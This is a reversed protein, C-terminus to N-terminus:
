DGQGPVYTTHEEDFRFCACGIGWPYYFYTWQAIMDTYFVFADLIYRFEEKTLTKEAILERFRRALRRLKKLGYSGLLNTYTPDIEMYIEELQRVSFNESRCLRAIPYLTYMSLDRSLSYVFEWTSFYQQCSGMGSNKGTRIDKHEPPERRSADEALEMLEEVLAEAEPRCKEPKTLVQRPRRMEEAAEDEKENGSREEMRSIRVHIEKKTMFIANKAELGVKRVTKLDEEDIQGLVAGMIDENCADYQIIVKNGTNQSYRLRGVPALDIREKHHIPAFSLMPVWCYMSGDTVVANNMISEFPLANWVEECLEPNKDDALSARAKLGLEPWEFLLKRDAM